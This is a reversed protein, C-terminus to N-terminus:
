QRPPRRALALISVGFAIVFRRPVYRESGLVASLLVNLPWRAPFVFDSPSAGSPGSPCPTHTQDVRYMNM